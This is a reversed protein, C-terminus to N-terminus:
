GGPSNEPPVPDAPPHSLLRPRSQVLQELADISTPKTMHHNFGAESARRRDEEQGYGTLAVLFVDRLEPLTRVQRAVEYGNMGPMAIDLFAIDPRHEKIWALATLGDHLLSVDQGISTLMLGLTKASAEVDDVVLVQLRPPQSHRSKEPPPPGLPPPTHAAPLRIIFESGRSLGESRAEVSGGHQEVLRKVLTLGIGLGGHSRELTTDVQQFIEFIAELMHAPIGPGNDKISVVIEAGKRDARVELVGKRDTYKIANHLINWFIQLLRAVDGEVYLPEASLHVHLTHQAAELLPQLSEIAGSILTRLDITQLRLEIRGRTIRSVDLLDDILRTMQSVQREMMQRLSEVQAHDHEVLPWIQLANSLPSLPNRLEHALIALFEDKRRDAEQLEHAQRQLEAEQRKRESIGRFVLIAGNVEQDVNRIPAASDDIPTERGNRAILITHNALGVIMGRRLARLAPNDVPLRTEENVIHFVTELPQGKAESRTWGTLQEAVPNLLTVRGELDTAIVGDGISLLTAHLLERHAHIDNLVKGITKLYRRLLWLFGAVALLALMLGFVGSLWLRSYSRENDAQRELLLLQEAHRMERLSERLQQMLNQGSELGPWEALSTPGKEKRLRIGEALYSFKKLALSELEQERQHQVANDATLRRLLIFKAEQEEVAREYPKLYKEEGSILYGRQGTEADSLLLGVNEVAQLVEHTHFVWAWNSQLRNAFYLGIGANAALAIVLLAVGALIERRSHIVQM